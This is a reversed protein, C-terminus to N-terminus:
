SQVFISMHFTFVAVEEADNVLSLWNYGAYNHLNERAHAPLFLLFVRLRIEEIVNSHEILPALSLAVEFDLSPTLILQFEM